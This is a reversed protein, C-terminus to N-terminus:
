GRYRSLVLKDFGHCHHAIASLHRTDAMSVIRRMAEDRTIGRKMPMVLRGGCERQMEM